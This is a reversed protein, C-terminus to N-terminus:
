YYVQGRMLVRATRLLDASAIGAEGSMTTGIEVRGSPHAIVVASQSSRRTEPLLQYALTDPIRCSAGLCLALTLPVAKHAQGMSLALCRVDVDSDAGSLNDRPFLLVIKPVSEISPDLGMAAAGAARINALKAKLPLDAEVSDPNLSEHNPLNLDAVRIFVGPNSVDVLSAAISSGDDLRLIDVPNGTPLAKGTKAGAPDIFKLTIKSSPGPVGDMIYDGHPVFRPPSGEVRFQSVITKSTNTNFIRVSAVTHGDVTTLQPTKVLGEDLSMPGVVSSLNGCNGAMDLKGDKIGVQVFTYDVDVGPRSPPSLIIIKSTSSIGSGMGDLQRGYPDPSGMAAPLVTHWEEEPPLDSRRIVLGNSTGGRMFIAPFSRNAPRSSSKSSTSFTQQSWPPAPLSRATAWVAQRPAAAAYRFMGSM